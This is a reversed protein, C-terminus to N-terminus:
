ENRSRKTKSLLLYVPKNVLKAPERVTPKVVAYSASVPGIIDFVKGIVNLNEDVVESGIKPTKETKVIINKSPTLARVRGLKQLRAMGREFFM